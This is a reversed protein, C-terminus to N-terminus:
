NCKHENPFFHKAGGHRTLVAAREPTWTAEHGSFNICDTMVKPAVDDGSTPGGHKQLGCEVCGDVLFSLGNNEQQCAKHFHWNTKTKEAPSPM